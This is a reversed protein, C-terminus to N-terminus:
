SRGGGLPKKIVRKIAALPRKIPDRVPRLVLWISAAFRYIPNTVRIERGKRIFATLKGKIQEGKLPGEVETQNDGVMYFGEPRIRCLRHLVLMGDERRYLVVDGRRLEEPAAKTLIAQDRGPILMPYMSYGKPSIQITEHDELLKEISEMHFAAVTKSGDTVDGGGTM